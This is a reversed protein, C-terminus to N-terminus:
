ACALPYRRLVICLCEMVEAVAGNEQPRAGCACATPHAHDPHHRPARSHPVAHQVHRQKLLWNSAFQMLLKLKKQISRAHPYNSVLLRLLRAHTVLLAPKEDM